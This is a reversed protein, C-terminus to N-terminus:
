GLNRLAQQVAASFRTTSTTGGLDPTLVDGRALVRTVATDIKTALTAATSDDQTDALWDLM